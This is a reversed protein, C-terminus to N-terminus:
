HRLFSVTSWSLCRKESSNIGPTTPLAERHLLPSNPAPTIRGLFRVLVFDLVTKFKGNDYM